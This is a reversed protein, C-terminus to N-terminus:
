KLLFAANTYFLEEKIIVKGKSNARFIITAPLKENSTSPHRIAKVMVDDGNQQFSVNTYVNRYGQWLAAKSYGILMTKYATIPIIKVYSSGDKNLVVRKIVSNKDFMNIFSISCANSEKIYAQFAQKGEDLTMAFVAKTLIINIFIFVAITKLIKHM